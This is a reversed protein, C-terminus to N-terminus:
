VVLVSAIRVGHVIGGCLAILNAMSSMGHFRGFSKALSIYEDSDSKGDDELVYRDFMVRTSTPELYVLNILTAVFSVALSVESAKSIIDPMATLTLVKPFITSETM